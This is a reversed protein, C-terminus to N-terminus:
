TPSSTTTSSCWGGTARLRAIKLAFSSGTGAPTTLRIARHRSHRSRAGHGTPIPPASSGVSARRWSSTRRSLRSRFALSVATAFVITCSGASSAQVDDGYSVTLGCGSIFVGVVSGSFPLESELQSAWYTSKNDTLTNDPACEKNYHGSDRAVIVGSHASLSVCSACLVFKGCFRVLSVQVLLGCFQSVLM